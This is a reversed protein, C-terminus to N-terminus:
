WQMIEKVFPITLKRKERLSSEDLLDLISFLDKLNRSARQLIYQAVDDNLELGRGQAGRQLAGVKDQDELLQVQYCDGSCLRSKLDPLSIPLEHPGQDASVILLHNRERLQNFLNFVAAEWHPKGVISQLDDFCVLSQQELSEILQNPSYGIVEQLPIYVSSKNQSSQIHCAAQLLHSLGSGRAGWLFLFGGAEGQLLKTLSSMMIKNQSNDAIFFNDLTAEPRIAINLSLQRPVAAEIM